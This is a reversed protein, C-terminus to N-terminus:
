AESGKVMITTGDSFVRAVRGDRWHEVNAHGLRKAARMAASMAHSLTAHMKGIPKRQMPHTVRYICM